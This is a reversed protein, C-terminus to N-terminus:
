RELKILDEEEIKVEVKVLEIIKQVFYRYYYEFKQANDTDDTLTLLDFGLEYGPPIFSIPYRKKYTKSFNQEKKPATKTM